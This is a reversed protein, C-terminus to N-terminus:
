PLSDTWHEYCLADSASRWRVWSTSTLIPKTWVKNHRLTPFAMFKLDLHYLWSSIIFHSESCFCSLSVKYTIVSANSITHSCQRAVPDRTSTFARGQLLASSLCTIDVTSFTETLGSTSSRSIAFFHLSYNPYVETERTFCYRLSNVYDRLM